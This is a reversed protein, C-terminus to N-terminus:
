TGPSAAPSRGCPRRRTEFGQTPIYGPHKAFARVATRIVPGLDGPLQIVQGSAEVPNLIIEAIDAVFAHLSGRKSSADPPRGTLASWLCAAQEILMLSGRMVQPRGPSGTSAALAARRLVELRGLLMSRAAEGSLTLASAPDSVGARSGEERVERSLAMSLAIFDRGSLRGLHQGFRFLARRIRVLGTAPQRGTAEHMRLRAIDHESAQLAEPLTCLLGKRDGALVLFRTVDHSISRPPVICELRHAEQEELDLIAAHLKGLLTALRELVPRRRRGGPPAQLIPQMRYRLTMACIAITVGNALWTPVPPSLGLAVRGVAQYARPFEPWRQPLDEPWAGAEGPLPLGDDGHCVCNQRHLQEFTEAPTAFGSRGSAPRPGPGCTGSRHPPHRPSNGCSPM